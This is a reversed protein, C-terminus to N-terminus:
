SFKAINAIRSNHIEKEMSIVGRSIAADIVNIQLYEQGYIEILKDIWRFLVSYDFQVSHINCALTQRVHNASTSAGLLVNKALFKHKEDANMKSFKSKYYKDMHNTVEKEHISGMIFKSGYNLMDLHFQTPTRKEGTNLKKHKSDRDYVVYTDNHPAIERLALIIGKDDNFIKFFIELFERRHSYDLDAYSGRMFPDIYNIVLENTTYKRFTEKLEVNTKIGHIKMTIDLDITDIFAATAEPSDLIEKQRKTSYRM